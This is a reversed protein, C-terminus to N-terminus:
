WEEEDSLESPYKSSSGHLYRIIRPDMEDENPGGCMRVFRRCQQILNSLGEMEQESGCEGVGNLIDELKSTAQRMVAATDEFVRCDMGSERLLSEAILNM